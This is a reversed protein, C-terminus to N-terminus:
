RKKGWLAGGEHHSVETEPRTEGAGRQRGCGKWLRRRVAHPGWPGAWLGPRPRRVAGLGPQRRPGRVRQGPSGVNSCPPDYFHKSELTVAFFVGAGSHTSATLIVQPDPEVTQLGSAIRTCTTEPNEKM